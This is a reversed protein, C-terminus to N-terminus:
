PAGSSRTAEFDAEVQDAVQFLARAAKAQSPTNHAAQFSRIADLLRRRAGVEPRASLGKETIRYVHPPRGSSGSPTPGMDELYGWSRLKGIWAAAIQAATAVGADKLHARAALDRATFHAQDPGSLERAADLIEYWPADAPPKQAM